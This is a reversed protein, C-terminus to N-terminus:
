LPASAQGMRLTPDGWVTWALWDPGGYTRVKLRADQAAQGLTAGEALRRFLTGAFVAARDRTVPWLPAVVAAAGAQKCSPIWGQPGILGPETAAAYCSALVVLAGNLATAAALQQPELADGDPFWMAAGDHAPRGHATLYLVGIPADGNLADDLDFVTRCLPMVRGLTAAMEAEVGRLDGGVVVPAARLSPFLPGAPRRALTVSGALFRYGRGEPWALMEWPILTSHSEEIELVAESALLPTLVADVEPPLLDRTLAHADQGVRREGHEPSRAYWRSWRELRQPDYLGRAVERVQVGLPHPAGRPGHFDPATWEFRFTEGEPGNSLRVLRLLHRAAPPELRPPRERPEPPPRNQRRSRDPPQWRPAESSVERESSASLISQILADASADVTAADAKLFAQAVGQVETSALMEEGVLVSLPVEAIREAGRSFRARITLRGPRSPFVKMRAMESSGNPRLVVHQPGPPQVKGADAPDLEVDVRITAGDEPVAAVVAGTEGLEADPPRFGARVVLPQDVTAPLGREILAEAQTLVDHTLPRAPRDLQPSRVRRGPDTPQWPVVPPPPEVIHQGTSRPEWVSPPRKPGPDHEELMQQLHAKSWAMTRGAELAAGERGYEAALAGLSREEIDRNLCGRTRELLLALDPAARQIPDFLPSLVASLDKLALRHEGVSLREAEEWAARLSQAPDPGGLRPTVGLALEAAMVAVAFLDDDLSPPGDRREASTWTLAALPVPVQPPGPTLEPRLPCVGLVEVEGSDRVWVRWPNLAGHGELGVRQMDELLTLLSFLLEAAARGSARGDRLLRALPVGAGVPYVEVGGGRQAASVLGPLFADEEPPAELVEPRTQQWIPHWVWGVFRGGRADELGVLDATPGAWSWGTFTLEM